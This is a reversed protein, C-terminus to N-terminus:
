SYAMRRSRLSVPLSAKMEPVVAPMPCAVAKRRAEVQERNPLKDLMLRENQATEVDRFKRQVDKFERNYDQAFMWLISVLMLICSVAFVIDLVKQDRYTRDTAAM